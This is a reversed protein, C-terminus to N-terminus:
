ESALVLLTVVGAIGLGIKANRSLGRSAGGIQAIEAPDCVTADILLPNAIGITTGVPYKGGTFGFYVSISDGSSVGAIASCQLRSWGGSSHVLTAGNGAQMDNGSSVTVPGVPWTFGAFVLAKKTTNNFIGFYSVPAGVVNVPGIDVQYVVHVSPAKTPCTALNTPANLAIVQVTGDPMASASAGELLWKSVDGLSLVGPPLGNLRAYAMTNCWSPFTTM